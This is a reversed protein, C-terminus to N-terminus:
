EVEYENYNFLEDQVNDWYVDADFLLDGLDLDSWYEEAIEERWAEAKQADDFVRVDSGHRHEYVAVWVKM